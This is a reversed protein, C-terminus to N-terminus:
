WPLGINDLHTAVLLSSRVIFINLYSTILIMYLLFLAEHHM